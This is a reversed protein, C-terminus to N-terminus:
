LLLTLLEELKRIEYTPIIPYTNPRGKSNYWCTDIGANIGGQIDSTLSDGIMLVSSRDKHGIKSLTYDFIGKEPKKYGTTESVVITDIYQIIESSKFRKEQVSATGNTLIVMRYKEYLAKCIERAGPIEFNGEGLFKLYMNSIEEYDMDQNNLLKKFRSTKLEKMTIMGKEFDEWAQQNIEKYLKLSTEDYPIGLFRYTKELAYREAKDFDFLTGDADLFLVEYKM